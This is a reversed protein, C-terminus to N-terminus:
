AMHGSLEYYKAWWFRKMQPTVTITGGENHIKAYRVRTGTEVKSESEQLTEISNMLYGKNYMLKRGLPSKAEGWPEFSDGTWGKKM